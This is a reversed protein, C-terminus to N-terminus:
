IPIYRLDQELVVPAAGSPSVKKKRKGLTGAECESAEGQALRKRAEPAPVEIRIFSRNGLLSILPLGSCLRPRSHWMLM